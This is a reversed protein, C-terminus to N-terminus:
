RLFYLICSNKCFEDIFYLHINTLKTLWYLYLYNTVNDYFRFKSIVARSVLAIHMTKLDAKQKSM